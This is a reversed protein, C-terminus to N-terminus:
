CGAFIQLKDKIIHRVFRLESIVQFENVVFPVSSRFQIAM